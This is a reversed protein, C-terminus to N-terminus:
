GVGEHTSRLHAREGLLLSLVWVNERDDAAQRNNANDAVSTWELLRGTMVDHSHTM